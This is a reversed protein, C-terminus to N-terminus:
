LIDEISKAKNFKDAFSTKEIFQVKEASSSIFLERHQVAEKDLGCRECFAQEKYPQILKHGWMKCYWM